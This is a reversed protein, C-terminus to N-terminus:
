LRAWARRVAADYLARAEPKLTAAARAVHMAAPTDATGFEIMPGYPTGVTAELHIIGDKFVVRASSLAEVWDDRYRGTDVRRPSGEILPILIEKFRDAIVRQAGELEEVLFDSFKSFRQTTPLLPTM